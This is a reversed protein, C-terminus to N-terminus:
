ARNAYSDCKTVDVIYNGISNGSILWRSEHGDAGLL